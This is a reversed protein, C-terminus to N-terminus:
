NGLGNILTFLRWKYPLKFVNQFLWRAQVVVFVSSLNWGIVLTKNNINCNCFSFGDQQEVVPGHHYSCRIPPQVLGNSFYQHFQIMEGPLSSFKFFIKSVVM